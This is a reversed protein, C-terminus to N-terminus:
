QKVGAATGLPSRRCFRLRQFIDKVVRISHRSDEHTDFRPLCGAIHHGHHVNKMVYILLESRHFIRLLLFQLQGPMSDAITRRILM